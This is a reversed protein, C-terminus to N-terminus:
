RVLSLCSADSGQEIRGRAESGGSGNASRSAIMRVKGAARNRVNLLGRLRVFKGGCQLNADRGSIPGATVVCFGLM